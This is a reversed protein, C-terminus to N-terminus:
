PATVILVAISCDLKGLAAPSGDSRRNILGCFRNLFDAIRRAGTGGGGVVGGAEGGGGGGRINDCNAAPVTVISGVRKMGLPMLAMVSISLWTPVRAGSNENDNVPIGVVINLEDTLPITVVICAAALAGIGGAGVAGNVAPAVARAVDAGAGAGCNTGKESVVARSAHTARM